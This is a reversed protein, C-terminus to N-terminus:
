RIPTINHALVSDCNSLANDAATSIMKVTSAM